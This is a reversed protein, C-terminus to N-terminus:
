NGAPVARVKLVVAAGLITIGDNTSCQVTLTYDVLDIGGSVRFQVLNGSISPSGVTLGSPSIAVTPTGTLTQGGDRIEPQNGFNVAYLRNEGPLKFQPEVSM